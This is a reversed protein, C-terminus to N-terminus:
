LNGQHSSTVTASTDSAELHDRPVPLPCIKSFAREIVGTATRISAVRPVGDKGPFVTLIRGLRWKLPPMNDDKLLVLTNPSLAEKTTKWKSRKQLEPVYESSWRAWFHQRLQEIRRYRSLSHTAVTMVDREAPATLPRGILFHGPTLPTFDDPDSSMPYIPRSNLVAEIQALVTSFEEYTLHANGIARAIHHKCSKVGAEWLGGFHPSYPPIFKFEIHNESSFNQLDDSCKNLSHTFEKAAGVFNRGNDSFIQLPKGRRSIFRKLALIFGESSLTTVLELHLAKTSFCIFLCLYCKELKAGRGKRNLIFMPGAYDVGCRLFPFGPQLRENPLNGMIPQSTIAKLRYCKTCRHVVQKALNRGGLPWWSERIQALLMQPGPHLLQKHQFNFLLLTFHHKSCLLIPHKKDYLFDSNGLRGGVRILKNKDLFINLSSLNRSPKCPLNNTLAKLENPFSERQVLKVLLTTANKLEEVTLQGTFRKSHDKTKANNIFRLVFACARQLRNYSSFREFKIVGDSNNVCTPVSVINSKLEPLIETQIQNLNHQTSSWDNVKEHLFLPGTWWLPLASLEDLGKGRSLLDAPNNIGSVHFWCLNNSLENIEVVRNQVFTKLQNPSMKLWGLVITSDTWLVINNFTVRLSQRVKELLKAGVLAGCLELRPISVPKVPAVRSKACLLKVTIDGNANWTRIYACAGYAIQSADTFIHLEIVKPSDCMVFRPIRLKYLNSISEVFKKWYLVIDPPLADDWGVKTLWLKQLLAKVVIVVPSLLGLPDYIQSIASLISRKTVNSFDNNIKSTFHFEDKSNFWGLGLTKSSVNEGLSLYKSSNANQATHSVINPSNTIWKRLPFCGSQCIETVKKCIYSLQTKSNAGTILDDVYFDELITQSVLEDTCELGLQRVCRICLYPASATGYTVTNLRYVSLPDSPNERWLILQLNRQEEHVLIQRFMKEIDACAVYKYQRFRLLISFLDNQLAPGILQIDNLSKQTSTKQSADFVVRLKTTVSDERLVGHHPLFYFPKTYDNDIRTMHGLSLYEQMFDSYMRKYQPNRVLKRELSLFRTKAVEYSDGLSEASEKLPIQVSFRGNDVRTTTQTFLNECSSEERSLKQGSCSIEEIEWFQKLQENLQTFQAVHCQVKNTHSNETYLPGTIIWGLKTNVLYPGSPLRIKGSVVLDWFCDAGILLDIHSPICFTPDALKIDKPISINHIDISTAPITSTISPLVLCKIHFDHDGHISRLNIECSHIAQTASNGIGSILSTSQLRQTNLKKCFSDTIFCHQSGNDLLARAKYYKNDKGAVEVTATSLLVSQLAHKSLLSKCNNNHSNVVTHLTQVVSSSRHQSDSPRDQHIQAASPVTGDKNLENHLLTNHKGYCQKCPGAQCDNVAHGPRLCNICLIKDRIFQLKINSDLDLFQQCGYLPHKGNCKVCTRTSKYFKKKNQTAVFSHSQKKANDQGAHSSPTPLVKVMELTDAKYKLFQILSELNFKKDSNGASTNKFQEWEKEIVVDLKTTIIHIILTDWSETPEGLTKLARLNKLVTDILKRIQAPSEKYVASMSFLAKVHNRILLQNNNFRNEILEWAISYNDSTFELSKIVQLANGSLSSRLYHYKQINDLQKSNHIMSLFMDKFELWSDYSGDFNPLSITPLKVITNSNCTHESGNSNCEHKLSSIQNILCNAEAVSSYYSNDFSERYELQESMDKEQVLEEILSQIKNFEHHLGQASKIRLELEARQKPNIESGVLLNVCKEFQTLMGKITGRKKKLDTLKKINDSESM